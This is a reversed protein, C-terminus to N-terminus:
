KKFFYEELMICLCHYIPLHLEQVKYTEEEPVNILVDSYRAIEGGSSGTLSIVHIGLARAVIAALIVNESNGSTSIGLFVDGAKGLAYVKQSFMCDPTVDNAYASSLADFATLPITPLANELSKTLKFGREADVNCLLDCFSEPILRKFRFSKMLEGCIHECDAASGGNGALLLKGGKEFCGALMFFADVIRDRIPLLEHYRTMLEDVRDEVMKNDCLGINSM